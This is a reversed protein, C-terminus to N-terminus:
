SSAEPGHDQEALPRLPTGPGASSHRYRSRTRETAAPGAVVEFTAPTMPKGSARDVMIPDAWIGTERDALVVSTGEPAFHKNGWNILSWLV